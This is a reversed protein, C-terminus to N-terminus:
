DNSADGRGGDSCHDTCTGPPACTFPSGCFSTSEVCTLGTACIPDGPGDCGGGNVSGPTKCIGQRQDSAACSNHECILGDDCVYCSGGDSCQGTRCPEDHEGPIGNCALASALLAAWPKPMFISRMTLEQVGQAPSQRATREFFLTIARLSRTSARSRRDEHGYDGLSPRSRSSDAPSVLPVGAQRARCRPM